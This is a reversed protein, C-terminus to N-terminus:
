KKKEKYEITRIKKVCGMPITIAYGFPEATATDDVQYTGVLKVWKKTEEYLYGVTKCIIPTLTKIKSESMWVNDDIIDEWTVEVIYPPRM